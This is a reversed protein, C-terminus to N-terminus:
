QLRKAERAVDVLGGGLQKILSRAAMLEDLLSILVDRHLAMQEDPKLMGVSRHLSILEPQPLM